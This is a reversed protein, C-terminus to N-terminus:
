GRGRGHGCHCGRGRSSSEEDSMLKTKNLVKALLTQEEERSEREKVWLEHITISGIIESLSVKDLNAYQSLSLSLSLSLTLNQHTLGLFRRVVDKEDM